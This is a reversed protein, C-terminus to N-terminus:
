IPNASVSAAMLMEESVATIVTVASSCGNTKEPDCNNAVNVCCSNEETMISLARIDFTSM